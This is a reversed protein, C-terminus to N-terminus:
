PSKTLQNIVRILWLIVRLIVIILRSVLHGHGELYVM